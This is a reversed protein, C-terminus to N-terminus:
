RLNLLKSCRLNFELMSFPKIMHDDVQGPLSHLRSKMSGAAIAMVKMHQLRSDQKMKKFLEFSYIQLLGIDM